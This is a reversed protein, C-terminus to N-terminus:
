EIMEYIKGIRLRVDVGNAGTKFLTNDNGGWSLWADTSLLGQIYCHTSDSDFDIAPGDGQHKNTYDWLYVNTFSNGYGEVHICGFSLWQGGWYSGNGTQSQIQNFHNYLVDSVEPSANTCRSINIGYSVANLQIYKFTNDRIFAGEEGVGPNRENNLYIGIRFAHLFVREVYVNAILQKSTINSAYLYIGYGAGTHNDSYYDEEEYGDSISYLNMNEILASNINSSANLFICANPIGFTSNVVHWTIHGSADLVGNKIGSGDKLEVMTIDDDNGIKFEAGLMDLTINRWIIITKSIWFTKCGPLWVTGSNNDLDNIAVQINDSNAAWFKGNSNRIFTYINDNTSTITRTLSVTSGASLLLLVAFSALIEIKRSM